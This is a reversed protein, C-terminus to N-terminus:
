QSAYLTLEAMVMLVLAAALTSLSLAAEGTWLVLAIGSFNVYLAFETAFQRGNMSLRKPMFMAALWHLLPAALSIGLILETRWLSVDTPRSLFGDAAWTNANHLYGIVALVVLVIWIALRDATELQRLFRFGPIAFALSSLMTAAAAALAVFYLPEFRDIWHVALIALFIGLLRAIAIQYSM